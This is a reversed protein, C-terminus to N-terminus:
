SHTLRQAWPGPVWARPGLGKKEYVCAHQPRTNKSSDDKTTPNEEQQLNKRRKVSEVRPHSAPGLARPGLGPARPGLSKNKYVCAEPAKHEQQPRAKNYSGGRTVPEERITPNQTHTLRQARGQSGPELRHTVLDPGPGQASCTQSFVDDQRVHRASCTQGFM